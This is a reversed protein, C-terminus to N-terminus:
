ATLGYFRIFQARFVFRYALLPPLDFLEGEQERLEAMKLKLPEAANRQFRWVPEKSSKCSRNQKLELRKDIQLYARFREFQDLM